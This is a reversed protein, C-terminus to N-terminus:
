IMKEIIKQISKGRSKRKKSVIKVIIITKPRIRRRGFTQVPGVFNVEDRQQSMM